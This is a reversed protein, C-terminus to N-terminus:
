AEHFPLLSRHNQAPNIHLFESLIAVHVQLSNGDIARYHCSCLCTSPTCVLRIDVQIILESLVSISLM